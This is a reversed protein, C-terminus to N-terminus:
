WNMFLHLPTPAINVTVDAGVADPGRLGARENMERLAVVLNEACSGHEEWRAVGLAAYLPADCAPTLTGHAGPTTDEVLTALPARLNSLLVDGRRLSARSLAANTHALSLYEM